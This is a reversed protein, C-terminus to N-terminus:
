SESFDTDMTVDLTYDPFAQGIERVVADYVEQRNRVDFSIVLDFRLIRKERDLHFGHIQLIEPRGAILAAIRDHMRVSESDRTNLAYIGVSTLLVHHERYVQDIIERSMKDLELATLTDAVEVHVTGSYTDPGYNNLILECVSKVEPFGAITQKIARALSLSIREGLLESVTNYLMEAGSKLIFCSIVAALWAELSLGLTLHLIAALLTASSLISDFLADKGANRLSESNYQRGQAVFYRGLLVKAGVSVAVIVLNPISYEPVVPHLIVRVSEALSAVGAFLLLVSVLMATLYEGRGHGFPHKRDPAKNALHTGVITIISSASDSLNNVADMTIAVSHSTLGVFAKFGALLLNVLIGTWSVRIISRSREEASKRNM